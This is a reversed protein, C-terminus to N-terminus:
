TFTISLINQARIKVRLVIPHHRKEYSLVSLDLIVGYPRDYPGAVIYSIVIITLHM